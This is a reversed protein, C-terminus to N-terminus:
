TMWPNFLGLINVDGMGGCWLSLNYGYETGFFEVTQLINVFQVIGNTERSYGYLSEKELMCKQESLCELIKNITGCIIVM